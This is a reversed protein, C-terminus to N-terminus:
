AICKWKQSEINMYKDGAPTYLNSTLQSEIGLQWGLGSSSGLDYSEEQEAKSQAREAGALCNWSGVEIGYTYVRRGRQM